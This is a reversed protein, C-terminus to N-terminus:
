PMQSSGNVISPQSKRDCSSAKALFWLWDIGRLTVITKKLLSGSSGRPTPPNEDGPLTSPAWSALMRSVLRGIPCALLGFGTTYCQHSAQKHWVLVWDWKCHENQCRSSRLTSVAWTWTKMECSLPLNQAGPTTITAHEMKSWQESTASEGKRAWSKFLSSCPDKSKPRYKAAKSYNSQQLGKTM